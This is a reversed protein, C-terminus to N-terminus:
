EKDDILDETPVGEAKSKTATTSAKGPQQNKDKAMAKLKEVQEPTLSAIVNKRYEKKVVGIEKQAAERNEPQGKYKERIEDSKKVKDLALEYIKAKQDDTLTVLNNLKDVNTQAKQEPTKEQKAPQDTRTGAPNRQQVQANTTLTLGALAIACVIVKKM